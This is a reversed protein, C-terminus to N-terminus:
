DALGATDPNESSCYPVTESVPSSGLVMQPQTSYSGFLTVTLDGVPIRATFGEAETEVRIEGDFVQLLQGDAASYFFTQHAGGEESLCQIVSDDLLLAVPQQPSPLERLRRHIGLQRDWVRLERGTCYFLKQGDGSSVTTGTINGPLSIDSAQEAGGISGPSESFPIAQSLLPSQGCGCLLACVLILPLLYKM